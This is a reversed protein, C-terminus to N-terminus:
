PFEPLGGAHRRIMSIRRENEDNARGRLAGMRLAMAVNHMHQCPTMMIKIIDDNEVRYYTLKRMMNQRVM